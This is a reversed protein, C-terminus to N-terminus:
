GHGSRLSCDARRTTGTPQSSLCLTVRRTRHRPRESGSRRSRRSPRTMSTESSNGTEADYTSIHGPHSSAVDGMDAVYLVGDHIVVGRPAFPTNSANSPVLIDRLTGDLKRYRLVEGNIDQGANQDVVVLNSNAGTRRDFILGRISDPMVQGNKIFPGFYAAEIEKFPDFRQIQDTMAGLPVDDGVYLCDSLPIGNRVAGTSTEMASEPETDPARTGCAASAGIAIVIVFREVKSSTRM